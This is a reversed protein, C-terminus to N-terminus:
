CLFGGDLGVLCVLLHTMVQSDYDRANIETFSFFKSFNM